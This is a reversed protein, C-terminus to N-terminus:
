IQKNIAEETQEKVVLCPIKCRAFEAKSNLIRGAGGRRAIRVAEGVQRPLASRRFSVARMIFAPHM